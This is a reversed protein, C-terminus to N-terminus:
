KLKIKKNELVLSYETNTTENLINETINKELSERISRRLERAETNKSFDQKIIEKLIKNTYKIVTHHKKLKENLDDIELKAIKTMDDTSLNNFVCTNEIRNIIESSFYKKM